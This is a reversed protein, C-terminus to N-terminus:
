LDYLEDVTNKRDVTRDVIVSAVNIQAEKIQDLKDKMEEIKQEYRVPDYIDIRGLKLPAPTYDTKSLREGMSQQEWFIEEAQEYRTFAKACIDQYFELDLVIANHFKRYDGGRNFQDKLYKTIQEKKAEAAEDILDLYEDRKEYMRQRIDDLKSTRESMGPVRDYIRYAKYAAAGALVLAFVFIGMANISMIELIEKSFFLRSVQLLNPHEGVGLQFYTEMKEDYSIRLLMLIFNFVVILIPLIVGTIKAIHGWRIHEPRNQTDQLLNSYRLSFFGFAVALGINIPAFLFVEGLAGVLGSDTAGIFFYANLGIEITLFMFIQMWVSAPNPHTKAFPYDVQLDRRYQKLDKEANDYDRSLDDMDAKAIEIHHEFDKMLESEARDLESSVKREKQSTEKKFSQDLSKTISNITDEISGMVMVSESIRERCNSRVEAVADELETRCDRMFSPFARDLMDQKVNVDSSRVSDRDYSLQRAAKEKEVFFTEGLLDPSEVRQIGLEEYIFDASM